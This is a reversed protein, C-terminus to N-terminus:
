HKAKTSPDLKARPNEVSTRSKSQLGCGRTGQATQALHKRRPVGGQQQQSRACRGQPTTATYDAIGSHHLRTVHQVQRVGPCEAGRRRRRQQLHHSAALELKPSKYKKRGWRPASFDAPHTDTTARARACVCVGDTVQEAGCTPCWVPKQQAGFMWFRGVCASCPSSSFILPTSPAILSAQQATILLAFRNKPFDLCCCIM